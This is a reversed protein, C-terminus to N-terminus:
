REIARRLYTLRRQTWAADAAMDQGRYFALLREYRARPDLGAAIHLKRLCVPCLSLPQRDAEDLNNSGNMNCAYHTCHHMGFMHGTEHTMTKLGRVLLRQATGEDASQGWFAPTYRVFSYIGVRQEFTAEGFVYNWSDGPYLDKMTLGLLCYADAPVRGRLEALVDGTLLQVGTERQRQTVELSELAIPDLVRTELGFYAELYQELVPLPPSTAPDFEGIPLLYITDRKEDPVNRASIRFMPATRSQDGFSAVWDHPGGPDFDAFGPADEFAARLEPGLEDVPGVAEHVHPLPPEAAEVVQPAPESNAEAGGCAVLVSLALPAVRLRM